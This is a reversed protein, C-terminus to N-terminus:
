AIPEGHVIEAHEVLSAGASEMSRASAVFPCHPCHCRCLTTTM